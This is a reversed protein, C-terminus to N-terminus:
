DPIMFFTSEVVAQAVDGPGNARAVILYGPDTALPSGDLEFSSTQPICAKYRNDNPSIRILVYQADAATFTPDSADTVWTANQWDMDADDLDWEPVSSPACGRFDGTMQSTTLGAAAADGNTAALQNEVGKLVSEARQFAVDTERWNGAMREQQLSIQSGTLAILTLMILIMLSIFLSAGRQRGPSVPQMSAITRM